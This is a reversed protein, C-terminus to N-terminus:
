KSAASNQSLIREAASSKPATTVAQNVMTVGSRLENWESPNLYPVLADWAEPSDIVPDVVCRPVAADILTVRNYGAYADLEDGKRPPHESCLSNWEDKPMARLKFAAQTAEIETEVEQLRTALDRMGKTARAGLRSPAAAAAKEADSLEQNLAEWEDLLDPRLCLYVTVERRKPSIRALMESLSEPM